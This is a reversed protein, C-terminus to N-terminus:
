WPDWGVVTGECEVVVLPPVVDDPEGVVVDGLFDVPDEVVVVVGPDVGVGVIPGMGVSGRLVTGGIM